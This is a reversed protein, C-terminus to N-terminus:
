GFNNKTYATKCLLLFGVLTSPSLAHTVVHLPPGNSPSSPCMQFPSARLICTPLPNESAQLQEPVMRTAIDGHYHTQVAAVNYLTLLLASISFHLLLFIFMFGLYVYFRYISQHSESVLVNGNM